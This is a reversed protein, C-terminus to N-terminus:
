RSWYVRVLYDMEGWHFKLDGKYARYVARGLRQALKDTTTQVVLTDAGEPAMRIIRDLVSRAGVRSAEKELLKVIEDRHQNFFEGSLSLYGEAYGDNVKRCTPCVIERVKDTGALRDYLKQDYFWRKEQYLAHCQTCLSAEQGEAPLYPDEVRGAHGFKKGKQGSWKQDKYKEM